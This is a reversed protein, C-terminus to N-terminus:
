WGIWKIYEFTVGNNPNIIYHMDKKSRSRFWLLISKSNLNRGISGANTSMSPTLFVYRLLVCLILLLPSLCSAAFSARGCLKIETEEAHYAMCHKPRRRYINYKLKQCYATENGVIYEIKTPTISIVKNVCPCTTDAVIMILNTHPIMQVSFPRRCGMDM